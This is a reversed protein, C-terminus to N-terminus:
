GALMQRPDFNLIMNRWVDYKEVPLMTYPQCQIVARVAAESAIQFTNDFSSNMVQPTGYLFGDPALELNLRVVLNQAEQVGVPPNWCRSIQQRLADIENVTLRSGLGQSSGLSATDGTNPADVAGGEEELSKDLLAAVRDPNFDNQNTLDLPQSQEPEPEPQPEAVETEPEPEPEPERQPPEPKEPPLPVNALPEPAPETEPLAEATEEPESVPEPEPEPDPPPAAAEETQDLPEGDPNLVDVREDEVVPEPEPAQPEVEPDGDATGATIETMEAITVIEVPLSAQMEFEGPDGTISVLGWAALAAHGVFSVALGTKM